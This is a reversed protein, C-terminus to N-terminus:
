CCLSTMVTHTASSPHSVQDFPQPNLGWDPCIGLNHNLDRTLTCVPPLRDVNREREKEREREGERRRKGGEERKLIFSFM